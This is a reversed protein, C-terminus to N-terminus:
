VQITRRAKMLHDVIEQMNSVRGVALRDELRFYNVCTGCLVIESGKQTMAELMPVAASGVQALRVGTNYCVVTEPVDDRFAVTRLFNVMLQAGLEDSGRGLTDADLVLVTGDAERRDVKGEVVAENSCTLLHPRPLGGV